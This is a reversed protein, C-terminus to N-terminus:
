NIILKKKKQYYKKSTERAKIKNKEYWLRHQIKRKNLSDESLTKKDNRLVIKIAKFLATHDIMNNLFICAFSKKIIQEMVHKLYVKM